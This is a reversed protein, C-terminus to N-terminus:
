NTIPLNVPQITFYNTFYESMISNKLSLTLTFERKDGSLRLPDYSAAVRNRWENTLLDIFQMEEDLLSSIHRKKLYYGSKIDVTHLIDEMQDFQM